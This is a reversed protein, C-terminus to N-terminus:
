RALNVALGILALSALTRVIAWKSSKGSQHALVYGAGATHATAVAILALLAAVPMNVTV